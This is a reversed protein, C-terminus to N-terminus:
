PGTDRVIPVPTPSFPSYASSSTAAIAWASAICATEVAAFSHDAPCCPRFMGRRPLSQDSRSRSSIQRRESFLPNADGAVLENGVIRRVAVGVQEDHLDAALM